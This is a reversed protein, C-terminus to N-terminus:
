WIMGGRLIISCFCFFLYIYIMKQKLYIYLYVFFVYFFPSQKWVKGQSPEHGNWFVYTQIVDLGGEKAKQILDPWMQSVWFFLCFGLFTILSLLSSCLSISLGRHHFDLFLPLIVLGMFCMQSFVEPSSRPYHISGSILIRRQGNIVIARRDYSVSATVWCVLSSLVVVVVLFSVTKARLGEWMGLKSGMAVM